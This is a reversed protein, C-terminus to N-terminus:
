ASTYSVSVGVSSNASCTAVIRDGNALVLKENGGYLQFTDSTGIEVNSVIQNNSSLSNGNPIAYVDVYVNANSYNCFSAWTIVTNGTSIYVNSASDLLTIPTALSM